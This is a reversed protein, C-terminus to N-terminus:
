QKSWAMGDVGPSLDIPPLMEWTKMDLVAIKGPGICSVFTSAGDPSVFIGNSSGPLDFTHSVTRTKLDIAFLKHAGAALAMLWKGDPTPESAFAVNPIEIWGDLKDTKTDIVAIRAQGQDHTFVWRGDVSISIRQAVKTLPIVSLLSHKKLDLVSVSGASINSTYAKYGDKSFVFMHTEPQGSPIKAVVKDTRTDVAYLADDLEASVYLLGDPGFLARHPRVAKGLAISRAVKFERLDVVDVHDGDTGKQGVAVNSYIPVYAFRGDRSVDVEHGNVGVSVKGLTQHSVPDVLLVSHDFQNVVVLNGSGPANTNTAITMLAIFIGLMVWRPYVM